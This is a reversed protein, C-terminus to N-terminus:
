PGEPIPENKNKFSCKSLDKDSSRLIICGQMSMGREKQHVVPQVEM